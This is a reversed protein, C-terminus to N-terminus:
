YVLKNDVWSNKLLYMSNNKTVTPDTLFSLQNKKAYLKYSILVVSFFIKGFNGSGM